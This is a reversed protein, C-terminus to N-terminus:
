FGNGDSFFLYNTDRTQVMSNINGGIIGGYEKTVKQQSVSWHMFKGEGGIFLNDSYDTEEITPLLNIGFGIQFFKALWEM